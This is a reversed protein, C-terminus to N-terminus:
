FLILDAEKLNEIEKEVIKLFNTFFEKKVIEILYTDAGRYFVEKVESPLNFYIKQDKSRLHTTKYQIYKIPIVRFDGKKVCKYLKGDLVIIPYVLGMTSQNMINPTSQHQDIEYILAKIVQNKAEFLDDRGSNDGKKTFAVYPIIGIENGFKNYYHVMSGLENIQEFFFQLAKKMVDKEYPLTAPEKTLEKQEEKLKVWHKVYLVFNIFALKNSTPFSSNIGKEVAYFIWPKSSKKCEIILNVSVRDYIQSHKPKFSKSAVIDIERAKGTQEDYYHSQNDVRWENQKLIESIELELPLGAKLIDKKIKEIEGKSSAM